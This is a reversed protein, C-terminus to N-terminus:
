LFQTGINNDFCVHILTENFQSGQNFVLKDSVLLVKIPSEVTDDRFKVESEYLPQITSNILARSSQIAM